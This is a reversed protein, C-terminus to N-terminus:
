VSSIKRSRSHTDNYVKHGWINHASLVIMEALRCSNLILPIEEQGSIAKLATNSFRGTTIHISKNVGVITKVKHFFKIVIM